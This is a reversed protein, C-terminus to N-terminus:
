YQKAVLEDDEVLPSKETLYFFTKIGTPDIFETFIIESIEGKTVSAMCKLGGPRYSDDKEPLSISNPDITLDLTELVSPNLTNSIGYVVPGHILAVKGWQQGRGQIFRYEMPFNLQIKDGDQWKRSITYFTGTEPAVDPEEGNIQISPKKCWM